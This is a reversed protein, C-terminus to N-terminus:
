KEVNTKQMSWSTVLVSVKNCLLALRIFIIQTIGLQPFAHYLISRSPNREQEHELTQLKWRVGGAAVLFTYVIFPMVTNPILFMDDLASLNDSTSM